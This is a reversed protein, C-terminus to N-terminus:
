LRQLLTLATSESSLSSTESIQSRLLFLRTVDKQSESTSLSAVDDTGFTSKARSKLEELQTDIPLAAFSTPLGLAVEFVERLPANGMITLWKTDNTSTRNGINGLTRELNLALRFDENQEGIAEEFSYSVYSAVVSDIFGDLETARSSFDFAAALDSYRSDALLNSLATQDTTGEEIIKQIFFKNDLDQRKYM